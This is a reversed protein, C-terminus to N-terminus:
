EGAKDDAKPRGPRKVEKAWGLKVLARALSPSVDKREGDKISPYLQINRLAQVTVSKSM